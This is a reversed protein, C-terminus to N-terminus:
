QRVGQSLSARVNGVFRPPVYSSVYAKQLETHLLKPAVTTAAAGGLQGGTALAEAAAAKEEEEVEEEEKRLAAYDRVINGDKDRYEVFLSLAAHRAAAARGHRRRHGVGPVAAGSVGPRLAARSSSGRSRSGVYYTYPNSIAQYM